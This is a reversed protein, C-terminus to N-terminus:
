GHLTGKLATLVIDATVEHPACAQLSLAYTVRSLGPDIASSSIRPFTENVRYFRTTGEVWQFDSYDDTWRFGAAELLDEYLTLASQEEALRAQIQQAVDSLTFAGAVGQSVQDLESVSLFLTDVGALDLQDSSSIYVFPTAATRRAKAEIYVKACEFDKPADLPGHWMPIAADPAFCQLLFRDLIRLEAILGKQEESSLLGTAGGRLLHHWRWTRALATAVAEKETTRGATAAVIDRCLREFIDRQGSEQLKFLLIRKAENPPSTLAVDIGKLRPLKGSPSASSDHQLAFLCKDDMSRGWFFDWKISDSASPAAIGHWPDNTV